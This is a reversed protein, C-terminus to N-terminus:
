GTSTSEFRRTAGARPHISVSIKLNIIFVNNDGRVPRHISVFCNAQSTPLVQDGGCPPTSQFQLDDRSRKAM